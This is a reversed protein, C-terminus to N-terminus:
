ANWLCFTPWAYKSPKHKEEWVVQPQFYLHPSSTMNSKLYVSAMCEKRKMKVSRTCPVCVEPATAPLMPTFFRVDFLCEPLHELIRKRTCWTTDWWQYTPQHWDLPKEVCHNYIHNYIHNSLLVEQFSTMKKELCAVTLVPWNDSDCYNWGWEWSSVQSSACWSLFGNSMKPNSRTPLGGPFLTISNLMCAHDDM